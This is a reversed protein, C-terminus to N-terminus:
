LSSQSPAPADVARRALALLGIVTMGNHIKGAMVAAVAEDLDWWRLTLDAEEDTRTHREAEPVPTLASAAFLEIRESNCGPSPYVSMLHEMRGARMDIEEALERAATVAPEEGDVDRLGAPLEWLRQRAPHRYQHILAVRGADDVPAVVVAGPHELYVREATGDGPMVVEDEVFSFRHGRYITRHERVVFDHTM